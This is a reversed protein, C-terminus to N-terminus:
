WSPDHACPIELLPNRFSAAVAPSKTTPHLALGSGVAVGVLLGVTGGVMMGVEAGVAIGM